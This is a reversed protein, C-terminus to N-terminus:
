PDSVTVLGEEMRFNAFGSRGTTYGRHLQPFRGLGCPILRAKRRM